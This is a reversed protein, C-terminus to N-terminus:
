TMAEVHTKRIPGPARGAEVNAIAFMRRGRDRVLPRAHDTM